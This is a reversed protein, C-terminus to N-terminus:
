LSDSLEPSQKCPGLLGDGYQLSFHSHYWTSGYQASKFNASSRHKNPRDRPNLIVRAYSRLSLESLKFVFGLLYPFAETHKSAQFKYTLSDGPAIPCQTV